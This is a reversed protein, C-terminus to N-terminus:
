YRSPQAAKINRPMGATITEDTVLKRSAKSLATALADLGGSPRLAYIAQVRVFVSPDFAIEDQAAALKQSCERVLVEGASSKMNSMM